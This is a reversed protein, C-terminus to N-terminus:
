VFLFEVMNGNRLFAFVFDKNDIGVSISPKTFIKGIKMESFEEMFSERNDVEYCIHHYGNFRGVVADENLAAILEILQYRGSSEMFCIKINQTNDIIQEGKQQYGLKKYIEISKDLDNVVIGIHHVRM